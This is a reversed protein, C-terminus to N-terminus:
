NESGKSLKNLVEQCRAMIANHKERQLALRQTTEAILDQNAQQNNALLTEEFAKITRKSLFMHAELLHLEQMLQNKDPLTM